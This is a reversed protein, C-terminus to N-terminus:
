EPLEIEFRLMDHQNPCADNARQNSRQNAHQKAGIIRAIIAHQKAGIICAIIAHQKARAIIGAHM